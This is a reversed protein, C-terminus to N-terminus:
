DIREISMWSAGDTYIGTDWPGGSCFGQVHVTDGVALDLLKEGTISHSGASTSVQSGGTCGLFPNNNRVIRANLISGSPFAGFQCGGGVRYRGAQGAPVTFYRQGTVLGAGTTHANHTDITEANLDLDQWGLAFATRAATAYAFLRAMGTRESSQWANATVNWFELGRTPHWRPQGDSTGAAGDHGTITSGDALVPLIGHRIGTRPNYPTLGVTQGTPPILLEGLNLANAPTAPLAAAAASAALAGPLVTLYAQNAGSGAVQADDVYTTILARRFQTADQASFGQAAGLTAVADNPVEYAGATADQTNQVVARYPQVTLQTNSLLTLEGMTNPPGAICGSVVQVGAAAPRFAAGLALRLLKGSLAQGSAGLVYAGVLAM